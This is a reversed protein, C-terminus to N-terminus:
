EMGTKVPAKESGKEGRKEGLFTQAEISALARSATKAGNHVPVIVSIKPENGLRM